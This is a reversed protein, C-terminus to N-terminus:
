LFYEVFEKGSPLKVIVLAPGLNFCFGSQSYGICLPAHANKTSIKLPICSQLPGRYLASLVLHSLTFDDSLAM